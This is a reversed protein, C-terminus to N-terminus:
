IVGRLELRLGSPGRQPEGLVEYELPTDLMVGFRHTVLVHDVGTVDTDIPLRLRADYLRAEANLTERSPRMDLGCALTAKVVMQEVPQGYADKRDTMFSQLLDCQDLMASEQTTQMCALEAATFSTMPTM